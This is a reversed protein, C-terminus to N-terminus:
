RNKFIYIAVVIIVLIIVIFVNRIVRDSKRSDKKVKGENKIEFDKIIAAAKEYSEKPVFLSDFTSDLYGFPNNNASGEIKVEIGDSLLSEKYENAVKKPFRGLLKM